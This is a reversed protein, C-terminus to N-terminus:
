PSRLYERRQASGQGRRGSGPIAERWELKPAQPFIGHVDSSPKEGVKPFEIDKPLGNVDRQGQTERYLM